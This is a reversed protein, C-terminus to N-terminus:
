ICYNDASNEEEILDALTTADAVAAAADSMRKWVSYTRCEERRACLEPRDLCEVFNLSGELARLVEGVTCREPPKSIAHGGSAGRRTEVLGAKSLAALISELYKLSINQEESLAAATMPSGGYRRALAVMVRLGYRGRTSIKM